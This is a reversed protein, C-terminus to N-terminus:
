RPSRRFAMTVCLSCMRDGEADDTPEAKCRPCVFPTMTQKALVDVYKRLDDVRMLLAKLREVAVVHRDGHLEEGITALERLLEFYLRKSEFDADAIEPMLLEGGTGTRGDPKAPLAALALEQGGQLKIVRNVERAEAATSPM